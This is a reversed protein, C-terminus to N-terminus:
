DWWLTQLRMGDPVPIPKAPPADNWWEYSVEQEPNLAATLRLVESAPARTVVYVHDSFPWEDDGLVESIGVQVDHVDPQERVDRLVTFFARVGPHHILNCGISGLDENGEFFLELSVVPESGVGSEYGGQRQIEALLDPLM